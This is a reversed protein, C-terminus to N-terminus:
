EDFGRRREARVWAIFEEVEGDDFIEDVMLDDPATFPKSGLRRAQEALARHEPDRNRHRRPPPEPEPDTVLLNVM